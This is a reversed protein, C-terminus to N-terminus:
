GGVVVVLLLVCHRERGVGGGGGAFGGGFGVDGDLGGADAGPRAGLLGQGLCEFADEALDVVCDADGDVLLGFFCAEVAGFAGM